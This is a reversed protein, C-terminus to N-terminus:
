FMDWHPLLNIALILNHRLEKTAININIKLITVFKTILSAIVFGWIWISTVFTSLFFIYYFGYASGFEQQFLNALHTYVFSYIDPMDMIEMVGEPSRHFFESLGFKFASFALISSCIYLFIAISATYFIDILLIILTSFVKQNELYNIVMRTELLSLYDFIINLIFICFVPYIFIPQLLYRNEIAIIFCNGGFSLFWGFLSVITVATAISSRIFCRFSFHNNTFIRDFLPVIFNSLGKTDKFRQRNLLWHSLSIRANESLVKDAKSFLIWIAGNVTAWTALMKLVFEISM